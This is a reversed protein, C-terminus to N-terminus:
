KKRQLQALFSERYNYPLSLYRVKSQPSLSVKGTAADYRYPVGSPDRALFRLHGARVLTELSPPPSGHRAVYQELVFELTWIDEDVQISALHNRANDRVDERESGELQRRWLYKATEIAGGQSLASAALGAMWHPASALRSADLWVEGAKKFDRVYWFYVIGKEFWLRWEKPQFSIGKDLLKIAEQPQGAGVPDPEALFISGPGIYM